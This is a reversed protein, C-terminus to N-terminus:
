IRFNSTADHISPLLAATISTDNNTERWCMQRLYKAFAFAYMVFMPQTVVKQPRLPLQLWVWYTALKCFSSCIATLVYYIIVSFHTMGGFWVCVWRSLNWNHQISKESVINTYIVFLCLWIEKREANSVCVIAINCSTDMFLTSNWKSDITSHTHTREINTRIVWYSLQFTFLPHVFFHKHELKHMQFSLM